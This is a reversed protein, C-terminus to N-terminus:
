FSSWSVYIEESPLPVEATHNHQDTLTVTEAFISTTLDETREALSMSDLTEILERAGLGDLEHEVPIKNENASASPPDEAATCGSLTFAIVVVAIVTTVKGSRKPFSRFIEM